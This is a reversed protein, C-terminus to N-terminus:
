YNSECSWCQCLLCSWRISVDCSGCSRSSTVHSVLSHLNELSGIWGHGISVSDGTCSRGEADRGENHTRRRPVIIRSLERAVISISTDTNPKVHRQITTESLETPVPDRYLNSADLCECIFISKVKFQYSKKPTRFRHSSPEGEM